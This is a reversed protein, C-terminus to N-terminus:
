AEFLGGFKPALKECCILKLSSRKPNVRMYVYEGVKFEKPTRKLDAYSKYMDQTTKLNKGIQVVQQEMETLMDLGVVVRSVLGDWNVLMRCKRGYLAKLPSIGM